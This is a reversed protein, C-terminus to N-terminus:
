VWTQALKLASGRIARVLLQDRIVRLLRAAVLLLIVQEL